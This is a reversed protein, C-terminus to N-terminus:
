QVEGMGVRRYGEKYSILGLINYNDYFAGEDCDM